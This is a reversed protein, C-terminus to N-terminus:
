LLFVLLCADKIELFLRYEWVKSVAQHKSREAQGHVVPLILICPMYGKKLSVFEVLGFHHM